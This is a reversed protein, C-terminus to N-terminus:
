EKAKGLTMAKQEIKPRADLAAEVKAAIDAHGLDIMMQKVTPWGKSPPVFKSIMSLRKGDAEIPGEFEISTRVQDKVADLAKVMGNIREVLWPYRERPLDIKGPEIITLAERRQAELAPCAARGPCYGCHEGVAYKRREIPEKEQHAADAVVSRIRERALVLNDHTLVHPTAKRTPLHYLVATAESAFMEDARAVAYGTLQLSDMPDTSAQHTDKWDLIIARMANVADSTGVIEHDGVALRLPYEPLWKGPAIAELTATIEPSTGNTLHRALEAHKDTGRQADADSVSPVGQSTVWSAPCRELRPLSSFRFTTM